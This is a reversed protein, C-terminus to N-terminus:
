ASLQGTMLRRGRRAGAVVASGAVVIKGDAPQIAVATAGDGSSVNSLPIIVIGGNGFTSDLSGNANYRAITFHDPLSGDNSEGVM